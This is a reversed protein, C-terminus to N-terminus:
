LAVSLQRSLDSLLRKGDVGMGEIQACLAAIQSDMPTSAASNDDKIDGSGVGTNIAPAHDKHDRASDPGCSDASGSSAPAANPARRGGVHKLVLLGFLSYLAPALEAAFGLTADTWWRRSFSSRHAQNTAREAKTLNLNWKWYQEFLAYRYRCEACFGGCGVPLYPCLARFPHYQDYFRPRFPTSPRHLLHGLSYVFEIRAPPRATGGGAASPLASAPAPAAAPQAARLQLVVSTLLRRLARGLAVANSTFPRRRPAPVTAQSEARKKDGGHGHPKVM